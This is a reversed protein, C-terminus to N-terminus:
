TNLAKHSDRHENLAALARRYAESAVRYEGGIAEADAVIHQADFRARTAARKREAHQLLIACSRM